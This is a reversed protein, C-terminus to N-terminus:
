LQALAEPLFVERLQADNSVCIGDQGRPLSEKHHNGRLDTDKDSLTETNGDESNGKESKSQLLVVIIKYIGM